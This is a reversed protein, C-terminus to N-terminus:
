HPVMAAAARGACNIHNRTCNAAAAHTDGGAAAGTSAGFLAIPLGVVLQASIGPIPVLLDSVYGPLFSRTLEEALIFVFLPARVKALQRDEPAADADGVGDSNLDWGALLAQARQLDSGPELRWSFDDSASHAVRGPTWGLFRGEPQSAEGGQMEDSKRKGTM